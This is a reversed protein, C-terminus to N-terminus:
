TQCDPVGSVDLYTLRQRWMLYAIRIAASRSVGTSVGALCHVLVGGAPLCCMWLCLVAFINLLCLYDAVSQLKCPPHVACYPM